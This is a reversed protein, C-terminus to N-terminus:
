QKLKFISHEDSSTRDQLLAFSSFGFDGADVGRAPLPASLNRPFVPSMAVVAPPDTIKRLIVPTGSEAKGSTSPQAFPLPRFVYNPFVEPANPSVVLSCWPIDM